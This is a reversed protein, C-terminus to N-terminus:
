PVPKRPSYTAGSGAPAGTSATSMGLPTSPSVPWAAPRGTRAVRVTVNAASLGPSSNWGPRANAPSTVTASMPRSTDPARTLTTSAASTAAHTGGRAGSAWLHRAARMTAAPEGPM